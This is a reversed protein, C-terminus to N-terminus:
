WKVSSGFERQSKVERVQLSVWLACCLGQHSFRHQTCLQTSQNEKQDENAMSAGHIITKDYSIGHTGTLYLREKLFIGSFIFLYWECLYSDKWINWLWGKWIKLDPFSENTWDYKQTLNKKIAHETYVSPSLGLDWGATLSGFLMTWSKVRKYRIM